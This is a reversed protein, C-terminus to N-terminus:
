SYWLTWYNGPRFNFWYVSSFPINHQRKTLNGCTGQLANASKYNSYTQSQLVLSSTMKVKTESCDINVWTEKYKSKFSEPMKEVMVEKSPWISFSELRLYLFNAWLIVADSITGISVNFRYTLDREFSGLRMRCPFSFFQNTLTLKRPRGIKRIPTSNVDPRSENRPYM